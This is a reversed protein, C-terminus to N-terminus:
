SRDQFLVSSLIVYSGGRFGGLLDMYLFCQKTSAGSEPPMDVFGAAQSWQVEVRGGATGCCVAPFFGSGLFMWFRSHTGLGDTPTWNTPKIKFIFQIDGKQHCQIKVTAPKSVFVAITSPKFGPNSPRNEWRNRDM